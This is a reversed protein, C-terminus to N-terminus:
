FNLHFHTLNKLKLGLYWWNIQLLRKQLVNQIHIYNGIEIHVNIINEFKIQLMKKEQHVSM